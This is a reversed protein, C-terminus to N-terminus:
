GCPLVAYFLSGKNVVSEVGIKGGQGEVLRRTLALGLGSGPYNKSASSDLQSFPKFLKKIDNKHIGIGYDKVEIRFFQDNKPYAKIDIDSNHNSFKIANSIFNYLMQKFRIPDINVEDLDIIEINLKINKNKTDLLFSDAVDKIIKKISIREPHFEIKGSEIKSFDLINNILESLYESSSLIDHLYERQKDTLQDDNSLLKAFGIIGNLPTRIEHSMNALFENKVKQTEFEFQTEMKLRHLTLEIAISLDRINFPKTIYGYPYSQKAHAITNLDTYATIFIVPINHKSRILCAAETGKMKGNLSIDMLILDPMLEEALQIAQEGSDGRGVVEYGRSELNNQLDMATIYEDEIILIRNKRKNLSNM